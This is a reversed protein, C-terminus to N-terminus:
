IKLSISSGVLSFDREQAAIASQGSIDPYVAPGCASTEEPMQFMQRLDDMSVAEWIRGSQRPLQEFRGQLNQSRDFLLEEFSGRTHLYVMRVVSDTDGSKAKAEEPSIKELLVPVLQGQFGLVDVVVASSDNQLFCRALEPLLPEPLFFSGGAFTRPERVNSTETIVGDPDAEIEYVQAEKTGPFRLETKWRYDTTSPHFWLSSDLTLHRYQLQRIHSRRLTQEDGDDLSHTAAYYGLTAGTLADKILFAEDPFAAKERPQSQSQLFTAMLAHGDALQRPVQYQISAALSKFITEEYFNNMGSSKVLLEISRNYDLRMVGLYFKEVKEAAGSFMEAYTMPHAGSVTDVNSIAAGTDIARQKLLDQASGQPTSLVYRWRVEIGGRGPSRYQAILTMSSESEEYQWASTQEWGPNAPMSVSLGSGPVSVPDSLVVNARRKVILAAILLGMMFVALLVIEILSYRKITEIDM